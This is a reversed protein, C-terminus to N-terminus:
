HHVPDGPCVAAYLGSQPQQFRGSVSQYGCSGAQFRLQACHRHALGKIALNNSETGCSTFVIEEKDVNILTAVRVRANEIADSARDGWKHFAVPNGFMEIFYPLMAEMVRSDTPTPSLNDLYVSKDQM